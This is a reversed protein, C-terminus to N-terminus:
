ANSHGINWSVWMFEIRGALLISCIEAMTSAIQELNELDEYLLTSAFNPM